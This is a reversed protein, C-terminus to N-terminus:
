RTAGFALTQQRGSASGNMDPRWALSGAVGILRPSNLRRKKVFQHDRLYAEVMDWIPEAKVAPAAEAVPAWGAVKYTRDAEISRGDLRMGFIPAGAAANPTCSYELGGVRVMDGGQQYYPDPSFLKDCVDELITKLTAGSMEILTMSLDTIALQDLM